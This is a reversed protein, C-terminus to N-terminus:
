IYQFFVWITACFDCWLQKTSERTLQLVPRKGIYVPRTEYVYIENSICLDRETYRPRKYTMKTGHLRTESM